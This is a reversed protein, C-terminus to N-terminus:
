VGATGARMTSNNIRVRAFSGDFAGAANPAIGMIRFQLTATIAKTTSDLAMNSITLGGSKSAATVNADANLGVDTIALNGGTVPVIFNLNPDVHCRVEGATLAPLGTETLNEGIFLPEIGAIVGTIAVGQATADASAVGTAADSTGTLRIVDGPALITSHTANVSFTELKGSHDASSQSLDLIFGAM